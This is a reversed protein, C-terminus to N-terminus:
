DNQSDLEVLYQEIAMIFRRLFQVATEPMNEELTVLRGEDRIGYPMFSSLGCLKHVREWVRPIHGKFSEWRQLLQEYVANDEPSLKNLDTM